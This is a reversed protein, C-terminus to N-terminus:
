EQADDREAPRLLWRVYNLDHPTTIKPNPSPNHILTIKIGIRAAAACDDTIALGQRTVYQYAKLIEHHRFAQPTEMAWLRNRELDELSTQILQDPQPLRKITDAVPHALCAAGDRQTTEILLRILDTTLLPRACDHILTHTTGSPLSELGRLVSLHREQGGKVWLIQQRISPSLCEALRLRQAQDRYVIAILDIGDSDAFAQLAYSFVPRGQIPALLKDGVSGLMRTGSGAALLLACNIPQAM